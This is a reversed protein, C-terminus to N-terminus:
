QRGALDSDGDTWATEDGEAVVHRAKGTAKALRMSADARRFLSDADEGPRLHAIGASVAVPVARSRTVDAVGEAIRQYLAVGDAATSQPLLVAFEDGGIRGAVDAARVSSQVCSAIDVLVADGDLHGLVTNVRKFDDVDFVCLALRGRYRAAIKAARELEEHFIRRNYLGTLPDRAAAERVVDLVRENAIAVGAMLALEGLVHLRQARMPRANRWLVVLAGAEPALAPLPVAYGAAFGAGHEAGADDLRPLSIPRPELVRQREVLARLRQEDEASLGRSVVLPEGGGQGVVLMAADVEVLAVAADVTAAGIQALDVALGIELLRVLQRYTSDDRLLQERLVAEGRAHLLLRALRLGGPLGPM